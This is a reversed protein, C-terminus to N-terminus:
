KTAKRLFEAVLLRLMESSNLGRSRAVIAFEKMHDPRLTYTKMVLKM